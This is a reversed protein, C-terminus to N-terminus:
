PHACSASFVNRKRDRLRMCIVCGTCAFANPERKLAGKGEFVSLGTCYMKNYCIFRQKEVPFSRESMQKFSLKEQQHVM